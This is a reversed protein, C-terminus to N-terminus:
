HHQNCTRQLTSWARVAEGHVAVLSDWKAYNAKREEEAQLKIREENKAKRIEGRLARQLRGSHRQARAIRRM